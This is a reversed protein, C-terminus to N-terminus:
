SSSHPSTTASSATLCDVGAQAVEIDQPVSGGSVGIAGILFGNSYLPLGGGFVVLGGNTEEIGTLHYSLLHRAIDNQIEPTFAGVARATEM